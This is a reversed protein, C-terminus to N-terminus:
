GHTWGPKGVIQLRDCAGQVLPWPAGTYSEKDQLIGRPVFTGQWIVPVIPREGVTIWDTIDVDKALVVAGADFSAPITAVGTNGRNALAPACWTCVVQSAYQLYATAAIDANHAHPYTLGGIPQFGLLAGAPFEPGGASAGPASVGSECWDHELYNGFIADYTILNKTNALIGTPVGVFGEVAPRPTILSPM